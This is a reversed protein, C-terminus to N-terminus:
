FIFFITKDRSGKTINKKNNINSETILDNKLVEKDNMNINNYIEKM